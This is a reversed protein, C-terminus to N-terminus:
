AKDMKLYPMGDWLKFRHKTAVTFFWMPFIWGGQLTASLRQYHGGEKCMIENAYM